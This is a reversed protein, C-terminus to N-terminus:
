VMIIWGDLSMSINRIYRDKLFKKIYNEAYLNIEDLSINIKNSSYWIKDYLKGDILIFIPIKYVSNIHDFRIIYEPTSQPKCFNITHYGGIHDLIKINVKEKLKIFWESYGDNMNDENINREGLWNETIELIDYNEDIANIMKKITDKNLKKKTKISYRKEMYFNKLIRINELYYNNKSYVINDEELNDFYKQYLNVEKNEKIHNIDNFPFERFSSYKLM